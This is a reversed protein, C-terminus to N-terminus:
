RYRENMTITITWSIHEDAEVIILGNAFSGVFYDDFTANTWGAYIVKNLSLEYASSSADPFLKVTILGVENGSSVTYDINYGYKLFSIDSFTVSGTGSFTLTSFSNHGCRDCIALRTTHGLATGRSKDCVSCSEPSTCTASEWTHGKAPVTDTRTTNCRTCSYYITGRKECTPKDESYRSYNHGLAAIVTEKSIYGCVSCKQSEIGTASCSAAKTIEKVNKHATKSISDTYHDGCVKCTYKMVGEKSCTAQVDVKSTYSHNVTQIIEEPLVFNCVSCTKRKLGTTSCTAEKVVVENYTHQTVPIKETYSEGCIACTYKLVGAEICSPEVEVISSYNHGDGTYGWVVECSGNWDDYWGDPIMSIRCYITLNSCGEFVSYSYSGMQTVSKPIIIKRLNQCEKFAGWEITTINEPININTLSVCGSFVCYEITTLSKGLKVTTLNSCGSFSQGGLYTLSDPLSISTLLECNAFALNDIKKLTNPFTISKLNKCSYFAEHGIEVISNSMAVTSLTDCYGFACDGIKVVTDPINVSKLYSEADLSTYFAWSRIEKVPLGKYYAPIDIQQATGSHGTVIYYKGDDSLSLKLNPDMFCAVIVVDGLETIQNVCEGNQTEQSWHLFVLGSKTATPLNVPLDEVTFSTVKTGSIKGGNLQYTITYTVIEWKAYLTIDGHSGTPISTIKNQYASESYWGVFRYGLKTPEKLLIGQSEVTYNKVNASPNTGGGPIVYEIQYTVPEWRAVLDVNEPNGWTSNEYKISGSYWGLFVYYDRTPVPLTYATQYQVSIETEKVLGGNADLTFTYENAEWHATYERDGYSGAPITVMLTKETLDTGTWGVFTYGDRTPNTLVIDAGDKKYETPNIATGGNLTYKITFGDTWAADFWIEVNEGPTYSWSAVSWGAFKYGTNQPIQLGAFQVASSYLISELSQMSNTNYHIQVAVNGQLILQIAGSYNSQSLLELGAIVKLMGNSDKYGSLQNEFAYKAPSFDGKEIWSLARAYHCELIMEQSDRFDGLATFLHIAKDYQGRSLLDNAMDYQMQPLIVAYWLIVLAFIACLMIVAIVAIIKKRKARKRAEERKKEAKRESELRLEERKANIKEINESCLFRLDDADKWGAISTLLQAAEVYSKINKQAMLRKSRFLKEDKRINTAKEQCEQARVASDKYDSISAFLRAAESQNHENYNNSLAWAHDYILSKRKEEAKDMCTEELVAADKYERITSFIQSAAKYANENNATAMIDSARTYIENLRALENRTTIYTTCDKLSSKLAEDGFRRAKRYNNSWDFPEPQNKLEEQKKVRLEAMLKGLYAQACEPDLDLVKECYEDASEWDGDELFIFVRKLLPSTNAASNTVVTERIVTTHQENEGVIKKIGRVLDQMFGLKSMDQAQLHSFEEPLDYPDMDRYAPILIKKAGNKILALYRSWENKVWVANFYEPKTGLVVMVKASNLAAFIYPEYASGLKDELTIRSFFVKFGEQTLQYYLEQALVSDIARRGSNDTEKYCIFVDFPDEKQSIALIGKQVENIEKAEAEYVLKQYSDAYMLASKYNDDDFISTFQARNITPIRKRSVPDEVYEIGYRCLVLSWYAEADNGDENLIQEYIGMAKNYDNNRRFHNARDYLNARREDDLRPITQQTGCYECVAVTEDNNIEFAGGCMKCKFLFM